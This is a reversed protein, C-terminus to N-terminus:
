KKRFPDWGAPQLRERGGQVDVLIVGPKSTVEGIAKLASYGPAARMKGVKRRPVTFLLEYDDGGHLAMALPDWRLKPFARQVSSPIEVLPITDALLEAGRRSAACLRALDTSLGDSIDMMASAIRKEALWSGLALRVEPYLHPQLLSRFPGKASAGKRILELGLQARGLRGSVYILDGPSAGSRTVAMGSPITGVVTISVSVTASKTTDGGALTMGLRRAARGMGQLFGDLWAGTRNSPLALTLLFFQTTAGMAALDSTARALSKYGISQPPHRNPWFHVDEIFADSSLVLDARHPSKFLAADDGIPLYPVMQPIKPPKKAHRFPVAKRIRDILQQESTMSQEM